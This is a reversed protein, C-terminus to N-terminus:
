RYVNNNHTPYTNEYKCRIKFVPVTITHCKNNQSLPSNKPLNHALLRM